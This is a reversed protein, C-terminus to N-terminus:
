PQIVFIFLSATLVMELDPVLVILRGVSLGLHFVVMESSNSNLNDLPGFDQYTIHTILGLQPGGRSYVAIRERQM